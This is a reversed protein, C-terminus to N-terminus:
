STPTGDPNFLPISSGGFMNSFNPKTRGYLNAIDGYSSSRAQAGALLANGQNIGQGMYANGVNTGYTGMSAGQNAAANQGLTMLSGLPQLQNSRNTQYRNFANQYEQSGMDQGYRTAARLAGGSILGGRAAASRDLLKQGESLRFAYGPDQQFDSMGFDRAYRGFDASQGAAAGQPPQYNNMANQDGQRAAAMARSLGAEDIVGPTAGLYVGDGGERGVGGTYGGPSGESTFQGALANRLEADSRMYPAGVGGGGAQAPMRLGLLEMLRNQGALGAQRYPEQGAMQREFMQKQLATARDSAAGAVGAASEAADAQQSGSFLSIAAPVIFSWPM